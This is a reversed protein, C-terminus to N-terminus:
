ENISSNIFSCIFPKNICVHIQQTNFLVTKGMRTAEKLCNNFLYQCVTADVSSMPDDLLLVDPDAYIARALGVRQKQGESLNVGREGIQFDDTTSSCCPLFLYSYNREVM